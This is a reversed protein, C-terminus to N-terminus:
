KPNKEHHACGPVHTYWVGCLPCPTYRFRKPQPKAGVNDVLDPTPTITDTLDSVKSTVSETVKSTVSETALNSLLTVAKRKSGLVSLLNTVRQKTFSNYLIAYGHKTLMLVVCQRMIECDDVANHLQLSSIDVSFHKALESLRPFKYMGGRTSRKPLRCIPTGAVMTDFVSLRKLRVHQDGRAFHLLIGLDFEANHSVLTTTEFSIVSSLLLEIADFVTMAVSGNIMELTIIKQRGENIDTAGSILTDGIALIKAGSIDTLQFALQLPYQRPPRFTGVANTEIDVFLLSHSKM